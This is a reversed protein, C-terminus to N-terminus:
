CPWNLSGTLMVSLFFTLWLIYKVLSTLWNVANQWSFLELLCLETTKPSIFLLLSACFGPFSLHIAVCLILDFPFTKWGYLSTWIAGQFSNWLCFVISFKWYFFLSPSFYRCHMCCASNIDRRNKFAKVVQYSFSSEHLLFPAFIIFLHIMASFRLKSIWIILLFHALICIAFGCTVICLVKM